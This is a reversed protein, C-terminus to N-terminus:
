RGMLTASFTVSTPSGSYTWVFRASLTFVAHQNGIFSSSGTFGPGIDISYAAPSGTPTGAWVNYWVNDAGLRDVTLAISPATGGTFATVNADLAIYTIQNTSFVVNGGATRAASPLSVVIDNLLPAFPVPM